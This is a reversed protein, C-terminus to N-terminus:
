RSSGPLRGGSEGPFRTAMGPEISIYNRRVTFGTVGGAGGIRIGVRWDVEVFAEGAFVGRGHYTCVAEADDHLRGCTAGADEIQAELARASIDLMAAQSLSQKVLAVQDATDSDDFDSFHFPLADRGQADVPFAGTILGFAPLSLFARKIGTKMLLQKTNCLPTSRTRAFKIGWYEGHLITVPGAM